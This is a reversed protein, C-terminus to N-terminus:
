KERRVGMYKVASKKAAKLERSNTNRKTSIKTLPNKFQTRKKVAGKRASDDAPKNVAMPDRGFGQLARIFSSTGIPVACTGTRKIRGPM